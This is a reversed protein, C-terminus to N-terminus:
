TPLRASCSTAISEWSSTCSEATTGAAVTRKCPRPSRVASAIASTTLSVTRRTFHHGPEQDDNQRNHHEASQKRNEEEGGEESVLGISLAGPDLQLNAA